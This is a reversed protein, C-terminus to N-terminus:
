LVYEVEPITSVTFPPYGHYFHDIFAWIFSCIIIFLSLVFSLKPKLFIYIVVIVSLLHLKMEISIWWTPM